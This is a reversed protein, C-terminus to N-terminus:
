EGVTELVTQDVPRVLSFDEYPEPPLVQVLDLCEDLVVGDLSVESSRRRHTGAPVSRPSASVSALRRQALSSCRLDPRLDCSV